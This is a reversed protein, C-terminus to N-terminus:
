ALVLLSEVELCLDLCLLMLKCLEFLSESANLYAKLAM